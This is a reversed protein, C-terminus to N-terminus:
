YIYVVVDVQNYGDLSAPLTIECKKLPVADAGDSFTVIPSSSVTKEELMGMLNIRDAYDAPDILASTGDKKRIVNSIGTLTTDHIAYDAM